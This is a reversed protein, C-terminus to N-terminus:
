AQNFQRQTAGGWSMSAIEMLGFGGAVAGILGEMTDLGSVVGEIKGGIGSLAGAGASGLQKFGGVAGTVGRGISDRIRGGVERAASNIASFTSHSTSGLSKISTAGKRGGTSVDNGM